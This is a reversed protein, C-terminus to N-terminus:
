LRTRSAAKRCRASCTRRDSRVRTTPAGDPWLPGGCVSCPAADALRAARNEVRKRAQREAEKRNREARRCSHCRDATVRRYTYPWFWGACRASGGSCTQKFIGLRHNRDRVFREFDPGFM